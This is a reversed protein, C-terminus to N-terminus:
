VTTRDLSGPCWVPWRNAWSNKVGRSPSGESPSSTRLFEFSSLSVAPLNPSDRSLRPGTPGAYPCGGGQFRGPGVYEVSQAGGSTLTPLPRPSGSFLMGGDWRVPFPPAGGGKVRFLPEPNFLATEVPGPRGLPQNHTSFLVTL